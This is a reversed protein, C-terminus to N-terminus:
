RMALIDARDVFGKNNVDMRDFQLGAEALAEERKNQIDSLTAM